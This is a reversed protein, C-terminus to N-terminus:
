SIYKTHLICVSMTQNSNSDFQNYSVIYEQMDFHQQKQVHM